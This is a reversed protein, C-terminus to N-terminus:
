CVPVHFSCAYQTTSYPSAATVAGDTGSTIPSGVCLTVWEKLEDATVFRSHDQDIYDFLSMAEQSNVHCGRSVLCCMLMGTHAHM